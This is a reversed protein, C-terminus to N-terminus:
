RTAVPRWGHGMLCSRIYQHRPGANMDLYSADAYQMGPRGIQVAPAPQQPPYNPPFAQQAQGMCQSNARGWDALTAGPKDWKQQGGGCAALWCLAAIAVIQRSM